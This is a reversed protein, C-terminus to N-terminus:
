EHEVRLKQVIMFNRSSFLRSLLSRSFHKPSISVQSKQLEELEQYNIPAVEPIELTPKKKASILSFSSIQSVKKTSSPQNM